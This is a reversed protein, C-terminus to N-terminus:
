RMFWLVGKMTEREHGLCGMFWLQEALGHKEIDRQLGLGIIAKSPKSYKRRALWEGDVFIKAPLVDHADRMDRQTVCNSCRSSRWSEDLIQLDWFCMLDIADGFIFPLGEFSYAATWVRKCMSKGRTRNKSGDGDLWVSRFMEHARCPWKMVMLIMKPGNYKSFQFRVTGKSPLGKSCQFQDCIAFINEINQLSLIFVSRSRWWLFCQSQARADWSLWSRQLELVSLFVNLTKWKRIIPFERGALWRVIVYEKRKQRCM